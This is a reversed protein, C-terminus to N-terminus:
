SLAAGGGRRLWAVHGRGQRADGDQAGHGRVRVEAGIQAQQDRLRAAHAPVGEQGENNNRLAVVSQDRPAARLDLVAVALDHVLGARLAGVGKRGHRVQNSTIMAHPVRRDLAALRQIVHLDRNVYRHDESDHVARLPITNSEEDM